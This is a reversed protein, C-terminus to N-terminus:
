FNFDESGANIRGNNSKNKVPFLGKWNNAISKNIIEIAEGENLAMKELSNLATQETISNKFKFNWETKKYVMWKVWAEKFLDSDWPFVIDKKLEEKKIKNDDRNKNEDENEDELNNVLRNVMQNFWEKILSKIQNDNLNLGEENKIFNEIKFSNKIKLKKKKDLRCGSICGALVAAAIKKPRHNSRENVLHNLKQNLWGDVMQNFKQNLVVIITEENCGSCYMSLRKPDNPIIGHQHQYILLDIYCAREEPLMTRTGEYFDNSYFLFAPDKAM